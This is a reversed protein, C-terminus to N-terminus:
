DDNIVQPREARMREHPLRHVRIRSHPEHQHGDRGRLGLFSGGDGRQRDDHGGSIILM